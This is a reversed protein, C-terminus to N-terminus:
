QISNRIIYRSVHKEREAGNQYLKFLALIDIKFFRSLCPVNIFGRLGLKKIQNFNSREKDWKQNDQNDSHVADRELQM